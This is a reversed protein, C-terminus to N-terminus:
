RIKEYEKKAKLLEPGAYEVIRQARIKLEALGNEMDLQRYGEKYTEWNEIRDKIEMVTLTVNVPNISASTDIGTGLGLTINLAASAKIEDIGVKLEVKGSAGAGVSAEAVITKKVIERGFLMLKSEATATAKLGAFASFEAVAELGGASLGFKTAAKAEVGATGELTGKFTVNNEPDGLRVTADATVKLGAFFEISAEALIENWAIKGKGKAEVVAGVFAKISGEIKALDKGLTLKAEAEAELAAKYQVSGEISAELDSRAIVLKQVADLKAGASCTASTSDVDFNSIEIPLKATKEKKVLQAILASEDEKSLKKKYEEWPDIKGMCNNYAEFCEHVIPELKEPDSIKDYGNLKNLIDELADIREVLFRAREDTGSMLPAKEKKSHSGSDKSRRERFNSLNQLGGM